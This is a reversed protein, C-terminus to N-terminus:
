RRRRASRLEAVLAAALAIHSRVNDTLSMIGARYGEIESSSGRRLLRMFANLDTGMVALQDTSRGAAVAHAHDPPLPDPPTGNILGAVYIGEFCRRHPCPHGDIAHAASLRLTVKVVQGDSTVATDNRSTDGDRPEDDLLTVLAKRVLAATTMQRAAARTQLPERLGRLDITVRDRSAKGHRRPVASCQTLRWDVQWNSSASACLRVQDHPLTDIGTRSLRLLAADLRECLGNARALTQAM